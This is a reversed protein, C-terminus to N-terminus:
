LSRNFVEVERNVCSDKILYHRHLVNLLIANTHTSNILLDLIHKMGVMSNNRAVDNSGGWLVVIDERTLPAMKMKASEKIDKMGLGPNIFGPVEYKNNLQQKIEYECGRAHSDGLILVKHVKTKVSNKKHNKKKDRRTHNITLESLKGTNAPTDNDDNSDNGLLNYHNPTIQFPNQKKYKIKNHKLAV